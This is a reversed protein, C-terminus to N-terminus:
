RNKFYWDLIEKAVPGAVSSGEGGDEVLVTIAVRPRDFPAFATFWAHPNGEFKEATGTKCGVIYPAEFFPWGTGGKQCAQRMGERVLNFNSASVLNSALVKDEIKVKGGGSKIEMALHPKLLKGSAMYATMSNIQMPTALLFGQGIGLHLTDGTFWGEKLTAKKWVEDPVLGLGEDSLDIGTKQGFGFKIAMKRIPELGTREALRFFFIDNSRAIARDIKLFGDRGGYQNYFWNSFKAGGLEFEGVDEIETDRNIKGSELGALASIIKFVSGPPYTGVTARDFLPREESVIAQGVNVPDFAPLSVLALIEGTNPNTVIVAGKKSGAKEAQKKLAEFSVKQLSADVALVIDQGAKPDTKGLVSIKKGQADVEVLRKGNEGAM